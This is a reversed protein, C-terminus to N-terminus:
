SCSLRAPQSCVPADANDFACSVLRKPLCPSSTRGASSDPNEAVGDNTVAQLKASLRDDVSIPLAFRSIYADASLEVFVRLLVSVANTFVELSLKRLETEIRRLKPDGIKTLCNSPILRDRQKMLRVVPTSKTAARVGGSAMTSHAEEMPPTSLDLPLSKAYDIRQQKRYIHGVRTPGFALDRAIYLLAKIASAEDPHFRLGGDKEVEIGIRSRVEPTEILRKFSTTPVQQREPGSLHGGEELFNLLRTHLELNGGTRARFRAKQDSGWAVIGAGANEGTHRLDIWHSADETRLVVCQVAPIPHQQYRASLKRIEELVGQSVADVLWDPNELARLAALRRNGELVTYRGPDGASEAIIPLDAPNLGHSVIDEALALLKGNQQRAVARLAERQGSNQFPIRPNEIDILLDAPRVSIIESM